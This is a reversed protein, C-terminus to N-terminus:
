AGGTPINFSISDAFAGWEVRHVTFLTVWAVLAGISLGALAGSAVVLRRIQRQEEYAEKVFAEKFFWVFNVAWLFPLLAFGLYFYRSCLQLKDAGTVKPSSLDM